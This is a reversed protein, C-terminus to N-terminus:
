QIWKVVPVRHFAIFTGLENEKTHLITEASPCRGGRKLTRMKRAHNQLLLNWVKRLGLRDSMREAYERPFAPSRDFCCCDSKPLQSLVPSSPPSRPRTHGWQQQRRCRSEPSLYSWCSLQSCGAARDSPVLRLASLKSTLDKKKGCALVEKSANGRCSQFSLKERCVGANPLAGPILDKQSDQLRTLGHHGAVELALCLSQTRPLELPALYRHLEIYSTLVARNHKCSHPFSFSLFFTKAWGQLIENAIHLKYLWGRATALNRILLFLISNISSIAKLAPVRASLYM